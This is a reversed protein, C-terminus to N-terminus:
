SMLVTNSPLKPPVFFIYPSPIGQKRATNVVAGADTGHAVIKTGELVVYEGTYKALEKPHTERWKLEVARFGSPQGNPKTRARRESGKGKHKRATAM